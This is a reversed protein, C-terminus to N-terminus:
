DDECSRRKAQVNSSRDVLESPTSGFMRRFTRSMHAADAFGAQHAAETLSGSSQMARSARLLRQWLLYTRLPLGLSEKFVHTFRSPSLGAVEALEDLKPHSRAPVSRLWALARVVGPHLRPRQPEVGLRGFFGGLWDDSGEFSAPAGGLWAEIEDAGFYRLSRGLSRYLGRGHESEPDVFLIVVEAGRADIAHALDGPVFVGRTEQVEAGTSVRLTGRRALVFHLAHHAHMSTTAGPGWVMVTAPWGSSPTVGRSGATELKPLLM